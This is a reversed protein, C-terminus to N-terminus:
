RSFTRELPFKSPLEINIKEDTHVWYGCRVFDKAPSEFDETWCIDEHDLSGDKPSAIILRVM